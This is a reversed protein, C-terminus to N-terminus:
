KIIYSNKKKKLANYFIINNKNVFHLYYYVKNIVNYMNYAWFNSHKVELNKNVKCM